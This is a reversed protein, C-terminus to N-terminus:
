LEIDRGTDPDREILVGDFRPGNLLFDKFDKYKRKKGTATATEFDHAGLVIFREEGRTIIQPGDSVVRDLVEALTPLAEETAPTPKIARSVM